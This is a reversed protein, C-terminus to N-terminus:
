ILCSLTKLSQSVKFTGDLFIDTCMAMLTLLHITTFVMVRPPVIRDHSEGGEGGEVGENVEVGEGNVAEQEEDNDHTFVDDVLDDVDAM